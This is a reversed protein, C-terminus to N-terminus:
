IIIKIHLELFLIKSLVCGKFYYLLKMMLSILILLSEWFLSDVFIDVIICLFSEGRPILIFRFSWFKIDFFYLRLNILTDFFDISMSDFLM